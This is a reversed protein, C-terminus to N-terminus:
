SRNRGVSRWEVFLAAIIMLCSMGLPVYFADTLATNYAVLLGDLYKPDIVNKLDSAGTHLVSEPNLGPVASELHVVLRGSFVTQAIAVGITGGLMQSFMMLATGIPADRPELVTQVAVLPQQTGLGVGIGFLAQYGIWENHSTNVTFTSMLGVGIPVLVASAIMFPTYYGVASVGAGAVVSMTVMGLITPLNRVGSETASVEKIAQFWIPLYFVMTFFVSGLAASYGAVCLVSRQKFIRPPVTANEQQQIQIAIFCAALLGALIFLAIIRGSNWAFKSGGWELALLLCTVSPMLFATGILDLQGIKAKLGLSPATIPHYTDLFFLVILLTIAGLPLNIFFVWRWTLHDTFVGGLLPGAVSALGYVAGVLGTYVPRKVPPVTMYIIVLTGSFIGACGIGAVSRGVILVVSSPAVGCILSGIEFIAIASLFIYKIAFITYLRGFFLEFACTTFLYASGYWGVDGLAHFDDTIKPIATAIIMTDLAVLFMALSLAFTVIHLKLGAPYPTANGSGHGDPPTQGGVSPDLEKGGEM